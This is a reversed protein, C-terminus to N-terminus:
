IYLVSRKEEEEENKKPYEQLKTLRKDTNLIRAESQDEFGQRKKSKKTKTPLPGSVKAEREALASKIKKFSLGSDM